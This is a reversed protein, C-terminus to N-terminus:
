LPSMDDSTGSPRLLQPNRAFSPVRHTFPKDCEVRGRPGQAAGEGLGAGLSLRARRKSGAMCNALYDYAPKKRLTPARTVNDAIVAQHQQSDPGASALEEGGLLKRDSEPSWAVVHAAVPLGHM